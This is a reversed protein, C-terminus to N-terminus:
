VKGRKKRLVCEIEISNTGNNKLGCNKGQAECPGCNPESWELYLIQPLNNSDYPVSSLNYMKTCSLLPLDEINEYSSVSYIQYGPGSYCPIPDIYTLERDGASCNFLTIDTMQDKSYHFPSISKNLVKLLKVMLCNEPDYLQIKQTKYDISKIPLKVPIPLELIPQHKENCSVLFGPYECHPDPHNGKLSFPFKIAPGHHGCKFEKCTNQTEALVKSCFALLIFCYSSILTQQMDTTTVTGM